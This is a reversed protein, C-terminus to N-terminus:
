DNDLEASLTKRLRKIALSMHAEITKVSIEMIEAVEKYKLNEERILKFVFKCKDPLSEIANNLRYTLESEILENEPNDTGQMYTEISSFDITKNKVLEKRIYSISINRAIGYVYANFNYILSLKERKEWISLFTDSIIEETIQSDKVYHLIFVNLKSYYNLYLAELAEQSNNVSLECVLQNIKEPSLQM